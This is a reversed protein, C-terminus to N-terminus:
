RVVILVRHTLLQAIIWGHACRRLRMCVVIGNSQSLHLSLFLAGELNPQVWYVPLGITVASGTIWYTVPEVFRRTLFILLIGTHLKKNLEESIECM